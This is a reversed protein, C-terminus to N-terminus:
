APEPVEAKLMPTPLGIPHDLPIRTFEGATTFGSNFPEAYVDPQNIRWYKM